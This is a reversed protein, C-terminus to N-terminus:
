YEKYYLDEWNAPDELRAAVDVKFFDELPDFIEPNRTQVTRAAELVKEIGNRSMKGLPQRCGGSPIGLIAMLAKLALPNRARCVVDGVPTSETTKVTVLGFL